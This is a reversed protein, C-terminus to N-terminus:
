NLTTNKRELLIANSPKLIYKIHWENEFREQISRTDDHHEVSWQLKMLKDHREIIRSITEDSIPSYCKLLIEVLNMLRSTIELLRLNELSYYENIVLKTIQQNNKFFTNWANFYMSSYFFKISELRPLILKDISVPSFAYLKFNIVNNLQVPENGIGFEHLTLNEVNPLWKSIFEVFDHPFNIIEISKIQPNKQLMGEIQSQGCSWSAETVIIDLYELESFECDIFSYDANFDLNISLRRLKPFLQNFPMIKTTGRSLYIICSLDEVQDFPITYQQLADDQISGLNLHTLAEYGFKNVLKNMEVSENGEIFNNDIHLKHVGNMFNKLVILKVEYDRLEIVKRKDDIFFKGRKKAYVDCGMIDVQYERYKQRFTESAFAALIRNVETINLLEAFEFENFILYLVDDNLDLLNTRAKAKANEDKNTNANGNQNEHQNSRSIEEANGNCNSEISILKSLCSDSHLLLLIFCFLFNYWM